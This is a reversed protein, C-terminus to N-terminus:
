QLDLKLLLFLELESGQADKFDALTTNPSLFPKLGEYLTKRSIKTLKSPNMM